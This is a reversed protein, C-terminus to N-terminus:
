TDCWAARHFPSPILYHLSLLEKLISGFKLVCTLKQNRNSLCVTHPYRSKWLITQWTFTAAHWSKPIGHNVVTLRGLKATRQVHLEILVDDIMRKM